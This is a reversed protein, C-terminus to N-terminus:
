DLTSQCTWLKFQKQLITWILVLVTWFNLFNILSPIPTIAVQVETLADNISFPVHGLNHLLM